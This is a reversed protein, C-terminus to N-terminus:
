FGVIERLFTEYDDLLEGDKQVEQVEFSGDEYVTFVVKFHEKVNQLNTSDEGAGMRTITEEHNGEYFICVDGDVGQIGRWSGEGYAQLYTNITQYTGTFYSAQAMAQKAAQVKQVNSGEVLTLDIAARGSTVDVPSGSSLFESIDVAGSYATSMDATNVAPLFGAAAGDLTTATHHSEGAGVIPLGQESKSITSESEEVKKTPKHLIIVGLIIAIVVFGIVLLRQRRKKLKMQRRKQKLRRKQEPTLDRIDIKRKGNRKRVKAM